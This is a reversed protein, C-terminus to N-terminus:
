RDRFEITADDEENKAAFAITGGGKMVVVTQQNDTKLLFHQSPFKKATLDWWPANQDAKPQWNVNVPADDNHLKLLRVPRSSSRVHLSRIEKEQIDIDRDGYWDGVSDYMDRDLSFSTDFLRNLRSKLSGIIPYDQEVQELSGGSGGGHRFSIVGAQVLFLVSVVIALIVVKRKM